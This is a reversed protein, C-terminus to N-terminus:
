NNASIIALGVITLLMTVTMIQDIFSFNDDFQKIMWNLSTNFYFDRGQTKISVVKLIRDIITLIFPTSLILFLGNEAFSIENGFIL